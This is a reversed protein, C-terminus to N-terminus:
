TRRGSCSGCGPPLGCPRPWGPATGRRPRARSRFLLAARLLSDSSTRTRATSMDQAAAAHRYRDIIELVEDHALTGSTVGWSLLPLELDELANLLRAACSRDLLTVHREAAGRDSDAVGAQRLLGIDEDTLEALTLPPREGLRELLALVEQPPDPM